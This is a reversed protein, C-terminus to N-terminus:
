WSGVSRADSAEVGGRLLSAVKRVSKKRTGNTEEFFKTTTTQQELKVVKM